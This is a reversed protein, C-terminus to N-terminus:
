KQVLFYSLCTLDSTISVNRVRCDSPLNIDVPAFNLIARVGARYFSEALEQAQDGPVTLIAIHIKKIKLRKEIKDVSFVDIGKFKKGIKKKDKEFIMQIFFGQESFGKYSSLARGLNGLGCLVVNWKKDLGLIGKIKGILDEVNYGVGRQGFKGFYSLDKRLQDPHIGVMKALDFSSINQQQSFSNLLARLYADLRWITEQPVKRM